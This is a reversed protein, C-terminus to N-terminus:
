LNGNLDAHVAYHRRWKQDIREIYTSGLELSSVPGRPVWDGTSLIDSSLRNAEERYSCNQEM